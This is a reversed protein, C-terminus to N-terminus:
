CVAICLVDICVNIKSGFLILNFWTSFRIKMQIFVVAAVADDFNVNTLGYLYNWCKTHIFTWINIVDDDDNDYDVDVFGTIYRLPICIIYECSIIQKILDNLKNLGMWAILILTNLENSQLVIYVNKCNSWKLM